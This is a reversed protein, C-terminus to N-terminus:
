SACLNAKRLRSLVTPPHAREVAPLNPMGCRQLTRLWAARNGYGCRFATEKETLGAELFFVTDDLAQRRRSDTMGRNLGCTPCTTM